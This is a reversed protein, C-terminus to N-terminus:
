EHIEGTDGPIITFDLTRFDSDFAFFHEIDYEEALVASSHDVLLIQQDDYRAFEECTRDFAGADVPLVAFSESEQITSLARVADGHGVWRLLLTALESLVYRSTYLPRYAYKGSRIGSFLEVAQEHSQLCGRPVPHDTDRM